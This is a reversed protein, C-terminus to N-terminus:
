SPRPLDFSLPEADQYLYEKMREIPAYTGKNPIFVCDDRYCYYLENWRQIATNWAKNKNYNENKWSQIKTQNNTDIQYNQAEQKQKNKAREDTSKRLLYIGLGFSLISPITCPWGRLLTKFILENNSISAPIFISAFFCFILILFIGLLLFKSFPPSGTDELNPMPSNTPKEPPSLQRALHSVQVNMKPIEISRTFRRGEQDYFTQSVFETTEHEQKHTRLIASVKEVRDNRGCMPCRAFSELSVGSVDRRILHETGCHQCNLVSANSNVQLKGGCSPCTLTIFEGMIIVNYITKM